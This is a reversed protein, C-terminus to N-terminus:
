AAKNLAQRSASSNLLPQAESNAQDAASDTGGNASIRRGNAAAMSSHEERRSKSNAGGIRAVRPGTATLAITAPQGSSGNLGYSHKGNRTSSSLASGGEEIGELKASEALLEDISAQPNPPM